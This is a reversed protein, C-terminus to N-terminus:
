LKQNIQQKQIIIPFNATFQLNVFESKRTKSIGFFEDSTQHPTKECFYQALLNVVFYSSEVVKQFANLAAVKEMRLHVPPGM